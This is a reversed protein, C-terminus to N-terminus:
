QQKKTFDFMTNGWRDRPQKDTAPAPQGKGVIKADEIQAVFEITGKDGDLKVEHTVTVPRQAMVQLATFLVAVFAFQKKM